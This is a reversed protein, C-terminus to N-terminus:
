DFLDFLKELIAMLDFGGPAKLESDKVTFSINKLSILTEGNQILEVSKISDGEFVSNILIEDYESPSIDFKEIYYKDDTSTTLVADDFDLYEGISTWLENVSFDALELQVFPLATLYLVASGDAVVIKAGLFGFLKCKAALKDGKAYVTIDSLELGGLESSIKDGLVVDASFEKNTLVSDVLAETKSVTAEEAFAAFGFASLALVLALVISLAKKM